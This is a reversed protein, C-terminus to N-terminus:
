ARESHRITWVCTWVERALDAVEFAMDWVARTVGVNATPM